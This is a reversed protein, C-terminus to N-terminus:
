PVFPEAALVDSSEPRIRALDEKGLVVWTGDGQPVGKVIDSYPVDVNCKACFNKRTAPQKCTAHLENMKIDDSADDTAKYARIPISVLPGVSLMGKWIAKASM